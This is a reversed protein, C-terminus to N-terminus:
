VTDCSVFKHLAPYPVSARHAGRRIDAVAPKGAAVVANGPCAAQAAPKGAVVVTKGVAAPKGAVPCAAQAAAKGAAAVTAM